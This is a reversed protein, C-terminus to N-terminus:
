CSRGELLPGISGKELEIFHILQVLRRRPTSLALFAATKKRSNAYRSFGLFVQISSSWVLVLKLHNKLLAGREEKLFSTMEVGNNSRPRHVILRAFDTGSPSWGYSYM